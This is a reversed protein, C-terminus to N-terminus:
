KGISRTSASNFAAPMAPDQGMGLSVLGDAGLGFDQGRQDAAATQHLNRASADQASKPGLHLPKGRCQDLLSQDVQDRAVGVTGQM